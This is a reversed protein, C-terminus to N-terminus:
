LEELRDVIRALTAAEVGPAHDDASAPRAPDILPWVDEGVAHRARDRDRALDIRHRDALVAALLRAFLPRVSIDYHRRSVGAWGLDAAIKRYSRFAAAGDAPRGREDRVAARGTDPQGATARVALIALAALVIATVILGFPGAVAYGAALGLGAAVAAAALVARM